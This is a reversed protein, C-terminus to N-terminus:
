VKLAVGRLWLGLGMEQWKSAPLALVAWNKDLVM